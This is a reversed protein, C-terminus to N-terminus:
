VLGAAESQTGIVEEAAKAAASAAAATDVEDPSAGAAAAKQRAIAELDAKKTKKAAKEAPADMPEMNDHPVGDYDVIEGEQVLKNDIFSTTLVRYKAM